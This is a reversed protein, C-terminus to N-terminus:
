ARPNPTQPTPLTSAVSAVVPAADAARWLQVVPLRAAGLLGLRGPEFGLGRYLALAASNARAATVSFGRGSGRQLAAQVLARGLGRRQAWPAVVLLAICLREPDDDDPTLTLVGAMAQPHPHTAREAESVPGQGQGLWAGLYVQTGACIEAVDDAETREPEAAGAQRPAPSGPPPLGLWDAEQAAAPRLVALVQAAVAPDAHNLLRVAPM